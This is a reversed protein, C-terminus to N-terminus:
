PSYGRDHLIDEAIRRRVDASHANAYTVEKYSLLFIKHCLCIQMRLFTPSRGNKYLGLQSHCSSSKWLHHITLLCKFSANTKIKMKPCVTFYWPRFKLWMTRTGLARKVIGTWIRRKTFVWFWQFVSYPVQVNPDQIERSWSNAGFAIPM